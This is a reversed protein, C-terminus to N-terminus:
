SGSTDSEIQMLPLNKMFKETVNETFYHWQKQLGKLPKIEDIM